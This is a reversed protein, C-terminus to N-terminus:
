LVVLISVPWSISASYYYDYGNTIRPYAKEIVIFVLGLVSGVITYLAIISAINLLFDGVTTRTKIQNPDMNNANHNRNIFSVIISIVSVIIIVLLVMPIFGLLLYPFMHGNDIVM